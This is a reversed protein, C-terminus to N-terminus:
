TGGGCGKIDVDAVRDDTVAFAPSDIGLLCFCQVCNYALTVGSFKTDGCAARIIREIVTAGADLTTRKPLKRIRLFAALWYCCIHSWGGLLTQGARHIVHERQIIGAHFGPKYDHSAIGSKGALAGLSFLIVLRCCVGVPATIRPSCIPLSTPRHPPITHATRGYGHPVRRM